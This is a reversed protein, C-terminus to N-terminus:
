PEGGWRELNRVISRKQRVITHNRTWARSAASRQAGDTLSEHRKPHWQHLMSTRDDIWVVELGANRARRVMDGDEAGWWVLDEDYGRVEFFFGRSALQIGGTGHKGRRRARQKLTGYARRLEEHDSPLRVDRGLDSSECLV